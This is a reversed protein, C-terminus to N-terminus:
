ADSGGTRQLSEYLSVLADLLTAPDCPKFLYMDFGAALARAQNEPQTFASVALAPIRRGSARVERIFSCGDVQPMGIDSIIFEIPTRALIVLAEDADAATYVSLRASELLWAVLERVDAEDDVVLVRRDQLVSARERARALRVSADM